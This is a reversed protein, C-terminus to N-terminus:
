EGTGTPAALRDQVAELFEDAGASRLRSVVMFWALFLLVLGAPALALLETNLPWLLVPLAGLAGMVLVAAASRHVRWLSSDGALTVQANGDGTARVEIQGSFVGRRLGAVVPLHLRGGAAAPAWEAGWDEAAEAVAALVVEPSADLELRHSDDSL